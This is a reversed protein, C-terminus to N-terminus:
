GSAKESALRCRLRVIKGGKVAIYHALILPDPLGTRDFTGDVKATIVTEDERNTCEIVELTVRVDFIERDSWAKIADTGRFERGIDEVEANDAFLALFSAADDNNIAQVYAEVLQSLKPEM